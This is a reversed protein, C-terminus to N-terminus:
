RRHLEEDRASIGPPRSWGRWNALEVDVGQEKLTPVNIGARADARQDRARAAQRSEIHAAFEGYGSIGAAVQAGLLAAVAEGGGAFAVYNVKAAHSM